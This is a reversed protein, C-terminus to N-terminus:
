QSALVIVNGDPDTFQTFSGWPQKSPPEKFHVGKVKLDFYTKDIDDSTFVINTLSGLRADGPGAKLLVLRTQGQPPQLEIWRSAKEFPADVVLKFGLKETYFALSKDQNTVVISVLKIHTIM